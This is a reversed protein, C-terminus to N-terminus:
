SVQELVDGSIRYNHPKSVDFGLEKLIADMQESAKQYEALAETKDRAGALFAVQEIRSLIKRVM